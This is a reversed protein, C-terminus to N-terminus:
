NARIAQPLEVYGTAKTEVAAHIDIRGSNIKDAIHIVALREKTWVTSTLYQGNAAIFNIRFQLNNNEDSM